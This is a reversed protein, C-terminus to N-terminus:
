RTHSYSNSGEVEVVTEEEVVKKNTHKKAFTPPIWIVSLIFSLIFFIYLSKQM